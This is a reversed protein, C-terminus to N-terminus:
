TSEQPDRHSRRNRTSPHAHAPQSRRHPGRLIAVPHDAADVIATRSGATLLGRAPRDLDVIDLVPIVLHTGHSPRAPGVGHVTARVCTEIAAIPLRPIAVPDHLCQSEPRPETVEARWLDRESSMRWAAIPLVRGAWSIQASAAPRRLDPVHAGADLDDTPFSAPPGDLIVASLAPRGNLLVEARIRQVGPPGGRSIASVQAETCGDRCRLAALDIVVEALRAPHFRGPEAAWPGVALALELAWAVPLMPEGGSTVDQMVPWEAAEFALTAAFQGPQWRLRTGGALVGAAGLRTAGPLQRPQQYGRLVGPGLGPGVPALFGSEGDTTGLLEAEWHRLGEEVPMAEMYALTAEFNSIMGGLREWTPWAVTVTTRGAPTATPDHAAWQGLRALAENAAGYELQGLMGGWRGTMSGVNCWVDPPPGSGLASQLALFGDTKVAITALVTEPRKRSLRTPKDVGANHVVVTPRCPLRRVLAAMSEPDVADAVECRIPWGARAAADLGLTLRRRHLAREVAARGAAVGSSAAVRRLTAERLATLAAPDETLWPDGAPLPGWRSTVVM